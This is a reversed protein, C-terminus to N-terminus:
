WGASRPCRVARSGPTISRKAAAGTANSGPITAVVRMTGQAIMQAANTGYGLCFQAGKLNTTDTNDLISQASLQDGLVGSAYPILQGNVVQQWGSNTLQVLMYLDAATAASSIAGQAGSAGAARTGVGSM